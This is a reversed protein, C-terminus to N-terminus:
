VLLFKACLWVRVFQDDIIQGRGARPTDAVVARQRAGAVGARVTGASQTGTRRSPGNEELIGHARLGRHNQGCPM